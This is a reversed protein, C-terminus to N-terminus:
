GLVMLVCKSNLVKRGCLTDTILNNHVELRPRRYHQPVLGVNRPAM